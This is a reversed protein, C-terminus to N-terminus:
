RKVMPFVPIPNFDVDSFWGDRYGEKWLAKLRAATEISISGLAMFVGVHVSELAPRNPAGCGECSGPAGYRGCYDCRYIM